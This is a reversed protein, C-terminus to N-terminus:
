GADDAKEFTRNGISLLDYYATGRDATSFAQSDDVLQGAIVQATGYQAVISSWPRYTGGNNVGWHPTTDGLNALDVFQWQGATCHGNPSGLAQVYGNLLTDWRKDGNTDVFLDIRPSGASCDTRGDTFLYKLEVQDTVQAVSENMKRVVGSAVDPHTATDVKIVDNDANQPDVADSADGFYKFPENSDKQHPVGGIAVASTGLVLAVVLLLGFSRRLLLAKLALSM